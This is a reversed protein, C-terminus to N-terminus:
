ADSWPSFTSHQEGDLTECSQYLIVSLRRSRKETSPCVSAVPGCEHSRAIDSRRPPACHGRSARPCLRASATTRHVKGQRGSASALRALASVASAGSSHKRYWPGVPWQQKKWGHGSGAPAEPGSRASAPHRRSRSRHQGCRPSQFRLVDHRTVIMAFYGRPVLSSVRAVSAAVTQSVGRQEEPPGQNGLDQAKAPPGHGEGPGGRSPDRLLPGDRQFGEPKPGLAPLGFPRRAPLTRGGGGRRVKM